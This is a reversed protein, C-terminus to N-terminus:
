LFPTGPYQMGEPPNGKPGSSCSSATISVASAESKHLSKKKGHVAGLVAVPEGLGVVPPFANATDKGNCGCVVFYM